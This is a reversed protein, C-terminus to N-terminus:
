YRTYGDGGLTNSRLECPQGHHQWLLGSIFFRDPVNALRVIQYSSIDHTPVSIDKGRIGKHIIWVTDSVSDGKIEIGQSKNAKAYDTESAWTEDGWIRSRQEEYLAHVESLSITNLSEIDLQQERNNPNM